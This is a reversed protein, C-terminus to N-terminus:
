ECNEKAVKEEATDEPVEVGANGEILGVRAKDEELSRVDKDLIELSVRYEVNFIGLVPGNEKDDNGGEEVGLSIDLELEESSNIEEDKEDLGNGPSPILVNEGCGEDDNITMEGVTAGGDDEGELLKTGKEDVKPCSAGVEGLGEGDEDSDVLLIIGGVSSGDVIDELLIIKGTGGPWGVDEPEEGETEEGETEEGEGLEVRKVVFIMVDAEKDKTVELGIDSDEPKVSSSDDCSPDSPIIAIADLKDVSELGIKM